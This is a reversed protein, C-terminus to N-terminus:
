DLVLVISRARSSDMAEKVFRDEIGTTKVWELETSVTAFYFKRDLSLVGHGSFYLLLLDNRGSDRFFDEIRKKIADTPEDVLQQVDGTPARLSALGPDSYRASAILLARRRRVPAEGPTM